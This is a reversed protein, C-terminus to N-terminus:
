KHLTLYALSSVASTLLTGWALDVAVLKWSSGKLTAMNTLDYTAYCISGFLVGYVLAHRLSDKDLAPSLVFLVIGIVYLVYFLVAAVMNPKALLLDGIQSKYFKNAVVGLWVADIAAMLGGTVLLKIIM